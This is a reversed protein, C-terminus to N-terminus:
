SHGGPSDLDLTLAGATARVARLYELTAEVCRHGPAALNWCTHPDASVEDVSLSLPEQLLAYDNGPWRGRDGICLVPATSGLHARVRGVLARKCVGPALVDISHSSRLATVGPSAVERLIREVSEWAEPAKETPIGELSIQRNKAERKAIRSLVDHARIAAEVARLSGDLGESNPPQTEDDLFAIEGGNHYGILVRRWLSADPLAQRLDKRVSRGRGTAIGVFVGTALLDALRDAVEHRPGTFRDLSDCLTGDYDLVLAAFSTERLAHRFRAYADRWAQLRGQAALTIVTAQAKREIAVAEAESMGPQAAPVSLAQSHYLKRGFAPVKPRGPDIGRAEGAMGALYLALALAKLAGGADDSGIDVRLVAVEDPLLRLTRDVLEQERPTALALVGTDRGHRALWHHRGHAFNRYDSTQVHGIAAETFKSELDVAAPQTAYGHLVVLTQREWLPRARHRLDALFDDHAVGPHLLEDLRGPLSERQSWARGYARALLVGTALLTNTALFGDKGAPLEFEYVFARSAAMQSLPTAKRACLVGLLKPEQRVVHEFCRLIDPNRGGATVVLVALDRLNVPSSVLELPTMARALKGTYHTHLQAALHASTLSGGSGVSVLPLGTKSRMFAALSEVSLALGYGYTEQLANLESAYPKGL